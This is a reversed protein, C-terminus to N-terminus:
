TLSLPISLPLSLSLSPYLSLSLSTNACRNLHSLSLSPYLSPSLSTNACRNLHSLSLPISLPLFLSLSFHKRVQELSLSLSLSLSFSLSLSLSLSFHKRVQELSFVGGEAEAATVVHVELDEGARPGPAAWVLDGQTPKHGLVQLRHAAAQNWVRSCYAHPYFARMAHPLSLWAHASGEPGTGYRHLARLMLRERAKYGPMLALAEKASSTNLFHCKAKNPLDDEDDPTFFLKIAAEMDETLLALGVQDAQVRQARGFRQPGYYNVFGRLKTNEVAKNVLTGLDSHCSNDHCKLDRVVLDFHNGQLRGLHLPDSVAHIHSLRMGRPEFESAKEKLQQPSVKKVVMNQFTVARKDKTGAYSFDSPLVCLAAAMYSIAELTELNEKRLVFGTYTVDECDADGAPRKKHSRRRERLRVTIASGNENTFSKTEVLKGLRGMLFHHVSTRHEKSADPKFTFTTGSVKADLFRFFDECEEESVLSSLKKFDPNEKVVIEEQNTVTMLFPYNYRVARHVCARQTKDSFSGLSLHGTATKGDEHVRGSGEVKLATTFLDLQESVSPGLILGLNFCESNLTGVNDDDKDQAIGGRIATAKESPPTSTTNEEIRSRKPKHCIENDEHLQCLSLEHNTKTVLQGNMNIETVVFDQICNKITGIFGENDSLFSSPLVPSHGAM